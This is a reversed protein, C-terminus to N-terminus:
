KHKAAAGDDDDDDDSGPANENTGMLGPAIPLALPAAEAAGAALVGFDGALAVGAEEEEDMEAEDDAETDELPLPLLPFLM